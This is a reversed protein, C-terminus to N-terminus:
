FTDTGDGYLTMSLKATYNSIHGSIYDIEAGVGTVKYDEEEIEAILPYIASKYNINANIAGWPAGAVTDRKWACDITRLNICDLFAKEGISKIQEPLTISTLNECGAYAYNGISTTDEPFKIDENTFSRNCVKDLTDLNGKEYVVPTNDYIKQLKEAITM